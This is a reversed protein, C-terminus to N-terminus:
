RQSPDITIRVREKGQASAGGKVVARSRDYLIRDSAFSDQGQSLHADGVLLLEESDANYEMREARAKVEAGGREILQRYRAPSGVAVIRSPQRSQKHSITVRDAWLRMSGQRVQVNGSYISMQRGDDIEVADAEIQIPQRQDDPLAHADLGFGWSFAFIAVLTWHRADSPARPFCRM